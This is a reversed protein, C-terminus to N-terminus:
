GKHSRYRVLSIIISITIISETFIGGWSGVFIDYLIWFGGAIISILKIKKPQDQWKAVVIAVVGCLAFLDYYGQWTFFTSISLGCIALFLIWSSSLWNKKHKFLFLVTLLGNVGVLLAGAFAGLLFYHTTWFFLSLIQWLLIEKRNRAHFSGAFALLAVIALTQILLDNNMDSAYHLLEGKGQLIREM